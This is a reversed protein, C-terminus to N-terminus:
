RRLLCWSLSSVGACNCSVVPRVCSQPQQWRKSTVNDGAARMSAICCCRQLTNCSRVVLKALMRAERMSRRVDGKIWEHREAAAEEESQEEGAGSSGDAETGGAAAAGVAEVSEAADVGADAEASPQATGSAAEAAGALGDLIHQVRMGDAMAAAEAERRKYYFYLDDVWTFRCLAVTVAMAVPVPLLTM